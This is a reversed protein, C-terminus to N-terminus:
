GKLYKVFEILAFYGATCMSVWKLFTGAAGAANWAALLGQMSEKIEKIDQAFAIDHNEEVAMHIALKQEIADIREEITREM